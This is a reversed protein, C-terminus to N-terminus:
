LLSFVNKCLIGRSSFFMLIHLLAEIKQRIEYDYESKGIYNSVANNIITNLSVGEDDALEILKQHVTKPIRLAIKSDIIYSM